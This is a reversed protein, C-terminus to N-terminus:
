QIHQRNVGLQLEFDQEQLVRVKQNLWNYAASVLEICIIACVLLNLPYGWFLYRDNPFIFSWVSLNLFSTGAAILIFADRDRKSRFFLVLYLLVVFPLALFSITFLANSKGQMLRELNNLWQPPQYASEFPKAYESLEAPLPYINSGGNLEFIKFGYLQNDSGRNMSPSNVVHDQLQDYYFYNSVALFRDLFMKGVTDPSNQIVVARHNINSELMHVISRDPKPPMGKTTLFANWSLISFLVLMGIVLNSALIFGLTKKAPTKWLALVCAVLFPFYAAAILPQKLHWAFPVLVLFLCTWSRLELSNWQADQSYKYVKYAGFCAIMAITAAAYETLLTHYYGVILPDIAIFAVVFILVAKRARTHGINGTHLAFYYVLAFLVLHALIMPVLFANENIGLLAQSLNLFFPFAPNRYPDWLDWAGDRILESLMLYHASDYSLIVPFALDIIVIFICAAIFSKETILASLKM